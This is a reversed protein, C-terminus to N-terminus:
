IFMRQLLYTRKKNLLDLLRVNIRVSYEINDLASVITPAKEASILPITINLIDESNLNAIAGNGGQLSHYIQRKYANSQMYWRVLPNPSRYIGCFAGITSKKDDHPYYSNKGVLSSSGNAMCIAIDGKRLLQKESPIKTIYVVNIGNVDRGYNLNNARIITIATEDDTVDEASYTIGRIFSGIDGLKIKTNSQLTFYREIISSKLKELDEILRRQTAIREDLLSLLEGIKTQEIKSPYYNELECFTSKSLIPVAQVAISSLYKPFRSQIAYYVFDKDFSSNVVVANIQQNTSMVTSAMGMKGITSGICTVLISHKPIIRTKQFGIQSLRTKTDYVYKTVNLDSPSAWLYGDESYNESQKTSPTNGTIIDGLQSIFCKRWPETFGPFRLAPASTSAPSNSNKNNETDAM